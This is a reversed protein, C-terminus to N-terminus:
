CDEMSDPLAYIGPLNRWYGQYDMGCGFLYRDPCKLAVYDAAIPRDAPVAKEVLVTTLVETAGASGAWERLAALTAGQDLVDDVLLVVRGALEHNPEVHWRLEGGRTAAGYRGVHLYGYELPFALRKLLEAAYPLGGHMVVLLLPNLEQLRLAIRVSVRDIARQVSEPDVLLEARERAQRVAAPVPFVQPQRSRRSVM